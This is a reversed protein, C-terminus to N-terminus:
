KNIGKQNTDRIVDKRNRILACKGEKRAENVKQDEKILEVYYELIIDENIFVSEQINSTKNLIGYKHDDSIVKVQIM